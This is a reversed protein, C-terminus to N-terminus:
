HASRHPQAACFTQEELVPYGAGSSAADSIDSRGTKWIHVCQADMNPLSRMVDDVSVLKTSHTMGVVMIRNGPHLFPKEITGQYTIVFEGQSKGEKPGYAPHEVIPLQATAILITGGLSQAELIRGGLEIKTPQIQGPVMRWRAFNFDRNVGTLTEPTFVEQICGTFAFSSMFLARLWLKM